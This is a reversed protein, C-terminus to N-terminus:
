VWAGNKYQLVDNSHGRFFTLWMSINGSGCIVYKCKAMILVIALFYKSFVYNTEKYVHDVTTNSKSIHRIEDKFLIYNHPFENMMTELFETEDSQILFMINPNQSKIINARELMENYNCNEVERFKDNGRYFLVCINDYNVVNYKNEIEIVIKKIEITPSFYKKIFPLISGYNLTKYNSYQHEHVYDIDVVYDIKDNDNKEFYDHTIDRNCGDPMYWEFQGTNDIEEPLYKQENFFDVIKHLKLTMTSFFGSWHAGLVLKNNKLKTIINILQQECVDMSLKELIFERPKYTNLNSLFLNIKEGFENVDYFVEGCSDDWHSITTAPVNAYHQGYEQNMSTVSWVLLPVNCSLAEELAFGQSEHADLWIGYKANQLYEIYENEDYRDRYSFVRYEVNNVRLINEIFFLEQPNRGKFYIFVRNRNQIPMTENFRETDVGFPVLKIQLNECEKFSSYVDVCWQSPVIFASKKSKIGLMKNDPFVGFHPGFLCVTEPYKNIDIPLAPSYICDYESVNYMDLEKENVIETININKYNRIAHLNKHHMGNNIFLVKM